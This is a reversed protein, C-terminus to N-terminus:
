RVSVAQGTVADFPGGDGVQLVATWQGSGPGEQLSILRIEKTPGFTEGVKATATSAM